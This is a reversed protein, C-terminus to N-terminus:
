QKVVIGIAGLGAVVAGAIVSYLKSSKRVDDIAGEMRKRDREYQDWREGCRIAHEASLASTAEVQQLRTDMTELKAMILANTVRQNTKLQDTDGM